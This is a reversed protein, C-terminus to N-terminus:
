RNFRTPCQSTEGRLRLGPCHWQCNQLTGVHDQWPVIISKIIEYLCSEKSLRVSPGIILQIGSVFLTASHMHFSLTVFSFFLNIFLQVNRHLLLFSLGSLSAHHHEDAISREQVRCFYCQTEHKEITTISPHNLYGKATTFVSFM